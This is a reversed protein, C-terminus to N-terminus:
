KQMDESRVVFFTKTGEVKKILAMRGRILEKSYDGLKMPSINTGNKQMSQIGECSVM